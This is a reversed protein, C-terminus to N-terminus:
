YSQRIGSLVPPLKRYKTRYKRPTARFAHAEATWVVGQAEMAGTFGHSAMKQIM